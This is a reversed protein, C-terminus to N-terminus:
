RLFFGMLWLPMALNGDQPAKERGYAMNLEAVQICHYFRICILATPVWVTIRLERENSESSAV